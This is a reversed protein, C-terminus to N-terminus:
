SAARVRPPFSWTQLTPEGDDDEDSGRDGTAREDSGARGRAAEREAAETVCEVAARWMALMRERGRRQEDDDRM